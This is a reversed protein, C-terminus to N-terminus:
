YQAKVNTDLYRHARNHVSNNRAELGKNEYSHMETALNKKEEREKRHTGDKEVKPM